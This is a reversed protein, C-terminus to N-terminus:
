RTPAPCRSISRSTCCSITTATRRRPRCRSPSCWRARRPRTARVPRRSGTPSLLAFELAQGHSTLAVAHGNADTVTVNNAATTEDTFHLPISSSAQTVVTLDNFVVTARPATIELEALEVGAFPTGAADFEIPPSVANPIFPVVVTASAVVDGAADLGILEVGVDHGANGFLGVTVDKLTFPGETDTIAVPATSRGPGVVFDGFQTIAFTDSTNLQVGVGGAQPFLANLDAQSQVNVTQSVPAGAPGDAGFHIGLTGSVATPDGQAGAANGNGFPDTGSFFPPGTTALGAEFVSGSAAATLVPVDDVDKVTFSGSATDGDFDQATYAFTLNLADPGSLPQDLPQNLVFDHTSNPAATSLTVSFVVDAADIATPPVAGTYGVLIEPGLLAFHVADGHSTLGTLPFADGNADTITVNGAAMVENTFYLPGSTPPPGVEVTIDGLVVGTDPDTGTIELQSIEAGAFATGDAAFIFSAGGDDPVTLTASAVVDGQADLGTLVLQSGQEAGLAVDTLMFPGATDSVVVSQAYILGPEGGSPSTIAGPPGDPFTYVINGIQGVVPDANFNVSGIFANFQAGTDLGETESTTAAAQAPGDAGFHIGLTGSAEIPDAANGAHNGVGFPDTTATLGAEFVTGSAAGTLVPVDDADTVTFTGSAKDGDFDQVAYAFTLSLGDPGSLPQDLPQDLVFDYTGNAATTSLTVSFVVSAADIAGPATTGTYAVLTQPGLLEFHVAEGHSTLDALSVAHGHADTM